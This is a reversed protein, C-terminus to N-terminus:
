NDSNFDTEFSLLLSSDKDSVLIFTEYIKVDIEGTETVINSLYKKAFTVKTNKTESEGVQIDWKGDESFYVLGESVNISIIRDDSNINSMRKITALDDPNLKFLWKTLKPNLRAALISRNIDRIRSLESGVLTIKLRDGKVAPTTLLLARIHMIDKDEYSPKYHFEAKIVDFSEFFKLNKCFKSSSSIVFDFTQESNWGIFYKNTELNYSKLCLVASESAVLSYALIFDSDIKLKIVDSIHSLDQLKNVFESYYEKNFQFKLKSVSM